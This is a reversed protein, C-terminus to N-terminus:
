LYQICEWRIADHDHWEVWQYNRYRFATFVGYEYAINRTKLKQKVEEINAVAFAIHQDPLQFESLNCQQMFFHVNKAEVALIMDSKPHKFFNFNFIAQLYKKTKELDSVSLCVHDISNTAIM